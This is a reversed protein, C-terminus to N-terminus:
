GTTDRFKLGNLEARDSEIQARDEGTLGGERRYAVIIAATEGGSLEETKELVKSSEAEGPLFSSSENEEADTFAQLVGSGGIGMFAVIAGAVILWKATRGAAFTLLNSM